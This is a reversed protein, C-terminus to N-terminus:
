MKWQKTPTYHDLINIIKPSGIATILEFYDESISM